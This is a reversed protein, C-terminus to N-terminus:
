SESELDFHDVIENALDCICLTKAPNVREVFRIVDEGYLDSYGTVLQAAIDMGLDHASLRNDGDVKRIFAALDSRINVDPVWRPGRCSEPM